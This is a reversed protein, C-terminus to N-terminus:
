DVHEVFIHKYFVDWDSNEVDYDGDQNAVKSGLEELEVTEVLKYIAFESMDPHYGEVDDLFGEELFKRADEINNFYEQEGNAFDIALYKFNNQRM